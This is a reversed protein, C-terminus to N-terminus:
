VIDADVAEEEVEVALSDLIQCSRSMPVLKAHDHTDQRTVSQGCGVALISLNPWRVPRDGRIPTTLVREPQGVKPTVSVSQACPPRVAQDLATWIWPM